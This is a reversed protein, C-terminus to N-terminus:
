LNYKKIDVMGNLMDICDQLNNSTYKICNNDYNFHLVPQKILADLTKTQENYKYVVVCWIDDTEQRDKNRELNM